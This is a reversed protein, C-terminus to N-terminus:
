VEKRPGAFGEMVPGKTGGRDQTKTLWRVIFADWNKKRKLPNAKVWAAMRKLEQPIDCAPYAERLENKFAEPITWVFDAGLSAQPSSKKRAKSTVVKKNKKRIDAEVETHRTKSGIPKKRARIILLKECKLRLCGQSMAPVQEILESLTDLVNGVLRPKTELEKALYELSLEVECGDSENMENAIIELVVLLQAYGKLGAKQRIRVLKPDNRMDTMHKFWKM